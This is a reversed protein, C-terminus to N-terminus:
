VFQGACYGSSWAWQLNYGGLDGTVDAVEGIFYLGKVKKSEMTRSSLEHTDVGGVTVEATEYGKTGKPKVEWRHLINSLHKLEKDPIQNMSRNEIWLECIRLAFRAPLHESLVTKVAARPRLAKEGRLHEYLDLDPFLDITLTDGPKWCSSIQLIAPGSLGEHTFLLSERIERKNCAVMVDMSLGALGKFRDADERSFILPVLGPRTEAVKLGFQRAIRHGLGSAGLGPYSLGGTAVVLSECEFDGLSSQVQFFRDKKIRRIRCGLRITVGADKCEKLLMKVIERASKNCFLQGSKKEHCPIGHRQVLAKFDHQTYRALASKCFHENGSLYHEASIELNTFNCHGGGSILIKKAARDAHDLCLVKRGRKGAEVACMLGAAGAGIIIVDYDTM